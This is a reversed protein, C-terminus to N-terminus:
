RGNTIVIYVTEDINTAPNRIVTKDIIRFGVKKFALISPINDVNIHAIVKSKYPIQSLQEVIINTGVGMRRYEDKVGLSLICWTSKHLGFADSVNKLISNKVPLANSFGIIGTEPATVITIFGNREFTKAMFSRIKPIDNIGFEERINVFAKALISLIDNSVNNKRYSKFTYKLKRSSDSKATQVTNLKVYACDDNQQNMM